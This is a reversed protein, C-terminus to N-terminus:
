YKKDFIYGCGWRNQLPIQWLWGSNMTEALTKFIIQKMDNKLISIDSYLM